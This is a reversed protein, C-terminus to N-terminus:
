DDEGAVAGIELVRDLDLLAVTRGDGVSLVGTVTGPPVSAAVEGPPDQVSGAEADLLGTVQDVLLGVAEGTAAHSVIALRGASSPRGLLRRGLDLVPVVDGRLSVVGTVAEPARPVRTIPPPDLVELVREIALGFEADELQVAVWAPGTRVRPEEERKQQATDNM